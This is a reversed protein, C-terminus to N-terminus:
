YKFEQYNPCPSTTPQDRYYMHKFQRHIQMLEDHCYTAYKKADSQCLKYQINMNENREAGM